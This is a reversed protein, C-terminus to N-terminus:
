IVIREGVRIDRYSDSFASRFMELSTSCSDHASIAVVKPNRKKLLEINEKVEERSIHRWPVKGTGFHKYPSMGMMVIPGGEVPYHLGGIIGYLPEEFLMEARALIKPLTQHGCGVILVIGKGKVNVALAQEHELGKKGIFFMENSITGITAVGKGIITPNKSYIPKIRPYSMPVPTYVKKGTLNIQKATLSFTNKKSWKQGGTHDGHNHSIVITDLDTLNIGLKNMNQLLPSPDTQKRNIGLDFLITHEDTRILYSVGNEGLLDDRSTYWDILPLVELTQTVGVNTLKQFRSENWELAAQQKGKKFHILEKALESDEWTLHLNIKAGTQIFKSLYEKVQKFSESEFVVFGTIGNCSEGLTHPQIKIKVDNKSPLREKWREIYNDLEEEPVEFFAVFRM